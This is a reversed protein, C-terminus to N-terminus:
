GPVTSNGKSRRCRRRNESALQAAAPGKDTWRRKGRVRPEAIYTRYGKEHLTKLTQASYYGKDAVLEVAGSGGSSPPDEDDDETKRAQDRSEAQSIDLAALVHERAADITAEVTATDAADAPHIEAALIVGTELDVANEAKHALRTRGDKLRTIRADADTTSAWEKNSTKKQRRRDFRRADEDTPDPIGSEEALRKLFDKYTEDTDRRVIAKMSADARLYTGDVGVTKGRM